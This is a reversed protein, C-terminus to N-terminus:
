FQWAVSLQIISVDLFDFESQLYELRVQSGDLMARAGFGYFPEDVSDQAWFADGEIVIDSDMEAHLYGARAFLGFGGALPLTGMVSAGYAKSDIKLSVDTFSWEARGGEFYHGEVALYPLFRYGAFVSYGTSRDKLPAGVFDPDLEFDNRSMGLGFTFGRNEDANACAAGALLTLALLSKRLM